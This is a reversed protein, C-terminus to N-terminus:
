LQWVRVSVQARMGAAQTSLAHFRRLRLWRKTLESRESFRLFESIARRCSDYANVAVRCSGLVPFAVM